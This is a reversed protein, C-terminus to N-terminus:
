LQLMTRYPSPHNSHPLSLSLRFKRPELHPHVESGRLKLSFTYHEVFFAVSSAGPWLNTYKVVLEDPRSQLTYM